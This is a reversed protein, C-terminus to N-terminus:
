AASLKKAIVNLAAATKEPDYKYFSYGGAKVTITFMPGGKGCYAPSRLDSLSTRVNVESKGTAECLEELTFKPYEVSNGANIPTGLLCRLMPKAGTSTGGRLRRPNNVALRALFDADTEPTYVGREGALVSLAQENLTVPIDAGKLLEQLLRDPEKARDRAVIPKHPPQKPKKLKDAISM